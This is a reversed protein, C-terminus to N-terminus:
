HGVQRIFAVGERLEMVEQSLAANEEDCSIILQEQQEKKARSAERSKKVSDNNSDRAERWQTWAESFEADNAYEDATPEKRNSMMKKTSGRAARASGGSPASAQIRFVIM